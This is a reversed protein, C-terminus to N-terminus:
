EDRLPTITAYPAPDGSPDIEYKFEFEHTNARTDTCTLLFTGELPLRAEYLIRPSPIRVEEADGPRLGPSTHSVGLLGSVGIDQATGEGLNKITLRLPSETSFVLEAPEGEVRITGVVMTCRLLPLSKLIEDFIRWALQSVIVLLLGVAVVFSPDLRRFYALLVLTIMSMILLTPVLEQSAAMGLIKSRKAAVVM